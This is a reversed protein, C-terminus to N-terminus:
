LNSDNAAADKLYACLLYGLREIDSMSGNYADLLNLQNLYSIVAIKNDNLRKICSNLYERAGTTNTTFIKSINNIYINHIDGTLEIFEKKFNLLALQCGLRNPLEGPNALYTLDFVEIAIQSRLKSWLSFLDAYGEEVVELKPQNNTNVYKCCILSNISENQSTEDIIISTPALYKINKNLYVNNSM